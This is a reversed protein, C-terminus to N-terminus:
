PQIDRSLRIQERQKEFIYKCLLDSQFRSNDLFACGYGNYPYDFPQERQVQCRFPLSTDYLTLSTVFLQGAELSQITSIFIGSLSLDTVTLEFPNVDQSSNDLILYGQVPIDVDLRFFNRREFESLSQIDTIKMMESTSLFIKGVLVKFGLTSNYISVKVAMNCHLTPLSDLNEGIQISGDLISSLSGTALLKNSLTKVECSSYLYEIAIPLM